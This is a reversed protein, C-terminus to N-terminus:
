RALNPTTSTTTQNMGRLKLALGIFFGGFVIAYIGILWILALAGDGPFRFALIGFIISLLGSLGLWFENDIEKRLRIAAAIQMIGTMIAWFAIVLILTIATIGPWTVILVGAIIGIIGELLHMWWNEDSQRTSFAYFITAVGDIVAYVGFVIILTALTLGPMILATIGFLISLIGRLLFVWWSKSMATLM